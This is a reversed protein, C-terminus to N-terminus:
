RKRRMAAEPNFRPDVQGLDDHEGCAGGSAPQGCWECEGRKVATIHRPAPAPATSAGRRPRSVAAADVARNRGRAKNAAEYKAIVRAAWTAPTDSPLIPTPKM